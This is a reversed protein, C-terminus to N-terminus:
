KPWQWCRFEFYQGCYHEIEIIINEKTELILFFIM